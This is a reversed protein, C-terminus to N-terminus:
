ASDASYAGPARLPWAGRAAVAVRSVYIAPITGPARLPDDLLREETIEEVTVFTQSAAHAMTLLERRSEIWVNGEPDDLPPHFLAIDPRIAPLAVIRDGPKFPNDILRWDARHALLDSGILGRLPIFPIGKQAAQLGAHIAPCTSDIIRITGAKVANVFRHATGFERPTVAAAEVSAVCGAGILLDAQVGGVPVCVLRLARAGRRIVERTAAMAVGCKDEALAIRAGDPVSGALAQLSCHPEM